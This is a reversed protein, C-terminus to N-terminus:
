GGLAIGVNGRGCPEPYQAPGGSRFVSPREFEHYEGHSHDEGGGRYGIAAHFAMDLEFRDVDDLCAFGNRIEDDLRCVENLDAVTARQSAQRAALMELANLVDITDAVERLSPQAVVPSRSPRLTVLGETALLRIAERMPTRSVGMKAAHDREKIAAGPLIGGRLIDRRLQNAIQEPLNKDPM